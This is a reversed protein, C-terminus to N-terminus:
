LKVGIAQRIMDTLGVEDGGQPSPIVTLLPRRGAIKLEGVTEPIMAATEPTMLLVAIDEQARIMKVAAEAEAANTVRRGEVGALRLGTLATENESLLYYRV